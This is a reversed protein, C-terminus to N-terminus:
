GLLGDVEALSLEPHFALNIGGSLLRSVRHVLGDVEKPTVMMPPESALARNLEEEGAPHGARELIDLTLTLGDVVTPVGVGIVPRGLTAQSLERRHNHVGSGPQIGTDCLQFTTGLRQVSRAALADVVVVAAPQMQEVVGRIVEASELGTNGMVGPQLACVCGLGQASDPALQWLHRTALVRDMTQPGVADPTVSRNGLGVVLVPQSPEVQVLQKLEEALLRCLTEEEEEMQVGRPIEVTIYRGQPRGVAEEGRSDVVQVETIQCGHSERQKTQIGPAERGLTTLAEHAEVILDSRFGPKM